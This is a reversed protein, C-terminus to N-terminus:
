FYKGNVKWDDEVAWAGTTEDLAWVKIRFCYILRLGSVLMLNLCRHDLGCSALRLGYFDYSIDTVLDGHANEILRTQIM